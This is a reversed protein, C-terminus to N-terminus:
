LQSRIRSPVSCLSMSYAYPHKSGVLALTDTFEPRVYNNASAVYAFSFVLDLM